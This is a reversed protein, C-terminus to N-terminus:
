PKKGTVMDLIAVTAPRIRDSRYRRPIMSEPWDVGNYQGAYASAPEESALFFVMQAFPEGVVLYPAGDVNATLEVTWHNCYGVDGFGADGCVSIGMRGTTSKARVEGVVRGFTGVVEMTAGLLLGGVPIYVREGHPVIIPGYYAPLGIGGWEVYYFAGGLRVDVSNTNLLTREFPTITIMGLNMCTLISRDVLIM